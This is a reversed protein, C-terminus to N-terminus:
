GGVAVAAVTGLTVLVGGTVAWAVNRQHKVQQSTGKEVALARELDLVQLTLTNVANEDTDFQGLARDIFGDCVTLSRNCRDLSKLGEETCRDLRDTLSVVDRAKALCNSYHRDPLVWVKETLTPLTDGPEFPGQIDGAVAISVLLLGIV